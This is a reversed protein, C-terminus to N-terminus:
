GVVPNTVNSEVERAKEDFGERVARKVDEAEAPGYFNMVASQNISAGGSSAAAAAAPVGFQGFSSGGSRGGFFGSFSLDPLYESIRDPLGTFLEVIDDVVGKISDYLGLFRTEIQGTVRNTVTDLGNFSDWLEMVLLAVLAIKAAAVVFPLFMIAVIVAIASLAVLIGPLSNKFATVWEMIESQIVARNAAAWEYFGNVMDTIEPALMSAIDNAWGRLVVRGRVLSDGFQEAIRQQEPSLIAGVADMEAGLEGIERRGKQLLLVTRDSMGLKAAFEAREAQTGLRKIRDAVEGFLEVAPKIRGSADEASIGLMAFIEVGSGIGRHAESAMRNLNALSGMIDSDAAGALQGAHVLRQVDGVTSDITRAFKVLEDNANQNVTVFAALGAAAATAAQLVRTLGTKVGDLTEAYDKAEEDDIEFGLITVLEELVTKAM